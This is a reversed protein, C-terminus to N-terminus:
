AAGRMRGGRAGRGTAPEPTLGLSVGSLARDIPDGLALEVRIRDREDPTAGGWVGLGEGRVLASALCSLRVPCAACVAKAEPAPDTDTDPYFPDPVARSSAYGSQDQWSATCAADDQWDLRILRLLQNRLKATLVPVTLPIMMQGPIQKTM